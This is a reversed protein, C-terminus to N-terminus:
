SIEPLVQHDHIYDRLFPRLSTHNQQLLREVLEQVSRLSIQEIVRRVVSIASPTMSLHRFGIALLTLADVPNAAMEGCLSLKINAHNCAAIIPKLFNIFGPSLIDYRDAILPNSRDSASLFQWLDNSGISLFNLDPLLHQLQFALMPAELMVGIQINKPGPKAYRQRYLNLEQLLLEKAELYERVLGVMPFMVYLDYGDAATILAKLQSRLLVPRDLTMRIARWGMAPNAEPQKQWYPLLKDGGVDLTRFVVPKGKAEGLVQRYINIQQSVTPLADQTMFTFETRFLGIGSAGSSHLAPMDLLLGANMSLEIPIGDKSILSRAAQVSSAIMSNGYRHKLSVLVSQLLKDNPRLLVLHHDADLIVTDGAKFNQTASSIVLLPIRLARAIVVVHSNPNAQELIIGKIQRYNSELLEVASLTHAVLISSDGISDPITEAQTPQLLEMLRAAVHDIDLIIDQIHQPDPQIRLKIDDCVKVIAEEASLGSQIAQVIRKLWAQDNIISRYVELVDQHEGIRNLGDVVFFREISNRLGGVARWLRETEVLANQESKYTKINQKRQFYIQGIALGPSLGIGVLKGPLAVTEGDLNQGADIGPESLSIVMVGALQILLTDDDTYFRQQDCLLVIVAETITNCIIPVALVTEYNDWPWEVSSSRHQIQPMQTTAAIGVIDSDQFFYQQKFLSSNNSAYGDVLKTVGGPRPIYLYCASVSLTTVILKFAETLRESAKQQCATLQYLRALFQKLSAPIAFNNGSGKSVPDNVDM